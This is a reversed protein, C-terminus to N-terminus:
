LTTSAATASAAPAAAEEAASTANPRSEVISTSEAAATAQCNVRRSGSRQSRPVSRTIATAKKASAAYTAAEDAHASVVRTSASCERMPMMRVASLTTIM